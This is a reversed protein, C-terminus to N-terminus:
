SGRNHIRGYLRTIIRSTTKEFRFPLVAHVAAAAALFLWFSFASAFRAHELYTEEVRDPHDTFLRAIM